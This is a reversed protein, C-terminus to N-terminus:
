RARVPCRRLKRIGRRWGLREVYRHGGQHRHWDSRSGRVLYEASTLRRVTVHGPEGAHDTEYAKLSTRIWAATAAREEDTPQEDAELPPMMGTELMEAIKEWDDADTAISFREVRNAISLGAEPKKTGHCEFCYKQFTKPPTRSVVRPPSGPEASIVSVVAVALAICLGRRKM